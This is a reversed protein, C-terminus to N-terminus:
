LNILNINTKNLNNIKRLIDDLSISPNRSYKSIDKKSNSDNKITKKLNVGKKLIDEMIIKSVNKTVTSPNKDIYVIKKDPDMEIMKPDLGEINIKFKIQELPVGYNLMKFYKSYSPHDKVCIKNNEPEAENKINDEIFSYEKLYRTRLYIKIQLVYLDYGININNFWLHPIFIITNTYVNREIDNLTIPNKNNDFISLIENGYQDYFFKLHLLYPYNKNKQLPSVLNRKNGDIYVNKVFHNISKLLKLLKKIEIDNELNLFSLKLNKINGYESVGFPLNMKPSQLLFDKKKYKFPIISSNNSVKLHQKLTIDKMSIDEFNYIINNQSMNNYLNIYKFQM